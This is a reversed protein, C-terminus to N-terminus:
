PLIDINNAFIFFYDPTNLLIQIPDQVQVIRYSLEQGYAVYQLLAQM